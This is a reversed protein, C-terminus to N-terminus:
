KKTEDRIFLFAPSGMMPPGIKKQLHFATGGSFIHLNLLEEVFVAKIYSKGNIIKLLDDGIGFNEENMIFTSEDVFFRYVTEPMLVRYIKRPDVETLEYGASATLESLPFYTSGRYDIVKETLETGEVITKKHHYFYLPALSDRDQDKFFTTELGYVESLTKNLFEHIDSGGERAL